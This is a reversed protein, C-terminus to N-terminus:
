SKAEEMHVIGEGDKVLLVNDIDWQEEWEEEETLEEGDVMQIAEEEDEV